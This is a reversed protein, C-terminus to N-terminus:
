LGGVERFAMFRSNRYVEYYKGCKCLWINGEVARPLLNYFDDYLRPRKCVHPDQMIRVWHGEPSPIDPNSGKFSNCSIHKICGRAEDGVRVKHLARVCGCQTCGPPM